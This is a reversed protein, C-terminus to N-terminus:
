GSAMEELLHLVGEPGDVVLDAAELVEPRAEAGGVAVSLTVVGANRLRRLAEFAPVDGVDDGAFFVARLGGALEEVVTGKDSGVPPRLEVSMKGPHAVLGTRDAEAAGFEQVWGSNQPARRYHLTVALGKREVTVGAPAVSEALAAAASLAQRWPAAEPSEEIRLKGDNDKRVREMGYLGVLQAGSAGAGAGQALQEVLYSVPRGSIM